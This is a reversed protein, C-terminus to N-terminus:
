TTVNVFFRFFLSSNIIFMNFNVHVWNAHAKKEFQSIEGKRQREAEEYEKKAEENMRKYIEIKEVLQNTKDGQEALM